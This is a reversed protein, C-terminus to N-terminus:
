REALGSSEILKAVSRQTEGDLDDVSRGSAV